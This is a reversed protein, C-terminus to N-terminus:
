LLFFAYEFGNLKTHLYDFDVSLYPVRRKKKPVGTDIIEIM